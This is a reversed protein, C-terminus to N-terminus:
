ELNSELKTKKKKLDSGKAVTLSWPPLTSCGVALTGPPLTAHGVALFRMLISCLAHEHRGGFVKATPNHMSGGTLNATAINGVTMSEPPLM